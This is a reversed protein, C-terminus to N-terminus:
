PRAPAMVPDLQEACRALAGRHRSGPPEGRELAAAIGGEPAMVAALPAGLADVVAAVPLAARAPRVVVLRVDAVCPGAVELLRGAAAVARVEAPVVVLLVDSAALAELTAADDRRPLDLVVTDHSRRAAGLVAAVAAAEVPQAAGRGWSLVALAGLRPLGDRLLAGRVTGRAGALDPWRFGPSGELGVLLDLGGGLRDGDVLLAPGTGSARLALAAALLSAGAGGRAGVVAVARGARSGELEAVLALSQLLAQRDAPLVLVQEAGVAVATRWLEEEADARGLLVVGTRRSPVGAGAADDGLLVLPATPWARGAAAADAVVGVGVGAASALSSVEEVLEGRGTVLLASPGGRM